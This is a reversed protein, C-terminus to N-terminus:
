GRPKQGAEGVPGTVVAVVRTGPPFFGRQILTFLGWMMKGVYVHDLLLHHRDAFDSLFADLEANRRAYGGAHFDYVIEWNDPVAGFAARQLSTVEEALFQAGKLVAFGLARRGPGLGGAVGALTGGTGVPVCVVDFPVTIEAPLEACGRVALENSGGEPLLHFRGFWQRLADIVAPSHKLRYTARDMYVLRMGREAAFALVDNLPLHEEGRIVGITSLGLRRGAAAVARVHNSYAGGFTLLTDHGEEVARALNYKLKRWKNGPCDASLLDDRLLLVRVGSRALRRDHLEELRTHGELM